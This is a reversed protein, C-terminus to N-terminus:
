VPLLGSHFPLVLGILMGTMSSPKRIAPALVLVPTMKNLSSSSFANTLANIDDCM